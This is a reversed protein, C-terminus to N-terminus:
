RFGGQKKRKAARQQAAGVAEAQVKTAGYGGRYKQLIKVAARQKKVESKLRSIKRGTRTFRDFLAM